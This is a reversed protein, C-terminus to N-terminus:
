IARAARPRAFRGPDFPVLDVERSAGDLILGAMAEGSAPANLIGWCNHGTAVFAGDVGPVAGMLPLGDRAIPRYCLQTAVVEAEALAPSFVRIIARLRDGADPEPVITAPDPPLEPDGPLGCVYVTGDPRPFVEPQAAGGAADAVEAFLADASVPEAPRLVVSHGALGYVPPLPLGLPLWRAAQMSWPGMAVVVADGELPEEGVMIGRVRSGDPTGLLGTVRGTVLRAGNDAAQDMMARTFDGPHVQATTGPDGLRAHVAAGAGLWPPAPHRRYPGLDRGPAAAVGLTDLRRYGWADPTEEALAAHLAFSRRTLPGLPGGDCWDLALFGGAKGSAACALGTGEVVVAEAGRRALFRAISAGIIGGGCILVRM